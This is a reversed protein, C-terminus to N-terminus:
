SATFETPAGYKFIKEILGLAKTLPVQLYSLICLPNPHDSSKSTVSKNLFPQFFLNSEPQLNPSKLLKTQPQFYDTQSLPSGITDRGERLTRDLLFKVYPAKLSTLLLNKPNLSKTFIVKHLSLEIFKTPAAATNRLM